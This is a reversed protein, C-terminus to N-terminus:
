TQPLIASQIAASVIVHQKSYNATKDGCSLPNQPYLGARRNVTQSKGFLINIKVTGKVINKHTM